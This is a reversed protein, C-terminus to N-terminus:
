VESFVEHTSPLIERGLIRSWVENLENNLEVLFAFVPDKGVMKIFMENDQARHWEYDHFLGLEQWLTKLTNNYPIVSTNGQKTNRIQTAIEYVSASNSLNSYTKNAAEWIERTTPVFMYTKIIKPDMFNILCSMIMANEAEWTKILIAEEQQRLTAGILYM